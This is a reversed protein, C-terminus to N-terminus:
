GYNVLNLLHEDCAIKWAPTIGDLGLTLHIVANETYLFNDWNNLVNTIAQEKATDALTPVFTQAEDYLEAPDAAALATDFLTEWETQLAEAVAPVDVKTATVSVALTNGERAATGATLTFSDSIKDIMLSPLDEGTSHAMASDCGTLLEIGRTGTHFAKSFREVTEHAYGQQVSLHALLTPGVGMVTLLVALMLSIVSATKKKTLLVLGVILVVGGIGLLVLQWIGYDTSVASPTDIGLYELQTPISMDTREYAENSYRLVRHYQAYDCMLSCFDALVFRGDKQTRADEVNATFMVLLIPDDTYIIASDNLYRIGNDTYWGYKHAITYPPNNGRFYDHPSAKQMCAEVGPYKDENGYLLQLTYLIQKPTFFNRALFAEDVTEETEGIYPLIQKRFEAYVNGGLEKVMIEMAPNDSNVLSLEQLLGYRNGQLMTDMTMEGKSVREAFLMNTPLKAVSAGYMLTDPNHYYEEGTVTNYYGATVQGPDIGREALFDAVVEDWTKNAFRADNLDVAFVGTTLIMTMCLLTLATLLRKMPKM